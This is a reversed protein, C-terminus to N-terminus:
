NGKLKQQEKKVLKQTTKDGRARAAKGARKLEEARRIGDFRKTTGDPFSAKAVGVTHGQMTKDAKGGCLKCDAQNDRDEYDRLHTEIVDCTNCLYNYLPM